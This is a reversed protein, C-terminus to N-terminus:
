DSASDDKGAETVPEDPLPEDESDPFFADLEKSTLSMAAKYADGDKLGQRKHVIMAGARMCKIVNTTLLTYPDAGFKQEVAIEEYGTLSNLLDALDLDSTAPANTM